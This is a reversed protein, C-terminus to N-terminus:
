RGEIHRAIVPFYNEGSGADIAEQVTRFQGSGDQAVVFDYKGHAQVASTLSGWVLALWLLCKVKKYNMLDLHM